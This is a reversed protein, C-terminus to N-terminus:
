GVPHESNYGRERLRVPHLPVATLVNLQLSHFTVRFMEALRTGLLDGVVLMEDYKLAHIIIQMKEDFFWGSYVEDFWDRFTIKEIWNRLNTGELGNLCAGCFFVIEDTTLKQDCLRCFPPYLLGFLGTKVTLESIFDVYM